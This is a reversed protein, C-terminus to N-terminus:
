EKGAILAIVTIKKERQTQEYCCAGFGRIGYTKFPKPTIKQPVSKNLVM